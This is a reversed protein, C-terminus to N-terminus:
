WDAIGGKKNFLSCFIGDASQNQCNNETSGFDGLQSFQRNAMCWATKNFINTKSFDIKTVKQIFNKHNNCYRQFLLMETKKKSIKPTSEFFM